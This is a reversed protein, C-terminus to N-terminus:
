ERGGARSGGLLTRVFAAGVRGRTGLLQVDEGQGAIESGRQDGRWEWSIAM